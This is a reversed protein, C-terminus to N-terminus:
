YLNRLQNNVKERKGGGTERGREEMGGEEMSM